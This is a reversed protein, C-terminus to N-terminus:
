YLYGAPMPDAGRAVIVPRPLYPKGGERATYKEPLSGWLLETIRNAVENFKPNWTNAEELVDRAYPSAPDSVNVTELRPWRCPSCLRRELETLIEEDTVSSKQLLLARM